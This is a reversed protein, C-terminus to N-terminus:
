SSKTKRSAYSSYGIKALIAIFASIAARVCIAEIPGAHAVHTLYSSFFFICVHCPCRVFLRWSSIVFRYISPVFLSTALGVVVVAPIGAPLDNRTRLWVLTL